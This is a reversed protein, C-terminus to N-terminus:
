HGRNRDDDNRVGARLTVEGTATRGISYALMNRVIRQFHRGDLTCPPLRSIEVRLNLRRRRAQLACDEAVETLLQNPDLEVPAAVIDSM